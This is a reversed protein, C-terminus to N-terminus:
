GGGVFRILEVQDDESLPLTEYQDRDIIKKNIEVVITAPSLDLDRLLDYLTTTNDILQQKGNCTIYM